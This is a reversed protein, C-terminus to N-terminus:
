KCLLSFTYLPVLFLHQWGLISNDHKHVYRSEKPLSWTHRPKGYDVSMGLITVVGPGEAEHKVRVGNM